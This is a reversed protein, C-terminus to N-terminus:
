SSLKEMVIVSLLEETFSHLDYDHDDFNNHMFVFRYNKGSVSSVFGALCRVGNLTGTKLKMQGLLLNSRYINKLTGDIGSIPLMSRIESYKTDQDIKEILSMISEPRLRAKRSLGSGNEIFNQYPWYINNEKMSRYLFKRTSRYEKRISDGTLSLFINRATLNDSEKLMLRLASDLDNSFTQAILLNRDSKRKRKFYGNIKGGSDLWIKKFAGFFYHETKTIALDHDIESCAAPFLGDIVITLIKKRLQERFSVQSRFNRCDGSGISLNNQIKIDDPLFLPTIDIKKTKPNISFNLDIKNSNIILASHMTNYPRLPSQDFSGTSNKRQKFFSLDLYIGETIEDIGKTRIESVLDELDEISFNPDGGGLILLHDIKKKNKFKQDIYAETKWQFRKDLLDMAAFATFLKAVSGPSRSKKPNIEILREDSETDELIISLKSEPIQHKKILAKVQDQGFVHSSSVFSIALILFKFVNQYNIIPLRM